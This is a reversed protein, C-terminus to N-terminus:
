VNQIDTDNVKLIYFVSMGKAGDVLRNLIHDKLGLDHLRLERTTIRQELESAVYLRIDETNAAIEVNHFRDELIERIIIEDRSLLALSITHGVQSVALAALKRVSTAVQDGCEDLGDIIIYVKIYVTCMSHLVQILGEASPERPFPRDSQLEDYYQELKAFAQENQQALQACLSSLISVVGHTSEDRYTCFFYALSTGSSGANRRLCEEIIAAALVSKGAGPIGTFWIRSGATTYWDQFDPGETLWLGTLHYRLKRNTEFERYPSSTQFADLVDNHKKDNAIKSQAKLLEDVTLQVKEVGDNIDSQRSLLIKLKSLSEAGLALDITQKQRQVDQILEKTEDSSFPWKLRGQIRDLCSASDIQAEKDFLSKELKILLQQCDHLHQPKLGAIQGSDPGGDLSQNEELHFALLSLNHLVVSFNRIERSLNQVEKRAGKVGKVYKTSARYVLDALSVLGAISASISLPDM